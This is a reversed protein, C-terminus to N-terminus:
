DGAEAEAGYGANEVAEILAALSVGDEVEVDARRKLYSVKARAVGPTRGLAEEVTRACDVCHMGSIKLAVNV